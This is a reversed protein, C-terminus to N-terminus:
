RVIDCSVPVAPRLPQDFADGEYLVRELFLGSPPATYRAPLDSASKLLPAVDGPALEGRGVEVLVGVMRRVMKWIFHSGRVRILILDGAEGLEVSEVKVQTSKEEPDDASFARFDHLGVFPAAAKKMKAFDLIDKVWWVYPKAFATRRRSVQYLYSRGVAGHRAHFRHPARHLDVLNIDAPLEDNVAWRLRDPALSTEVELHAVQMLAHVGADTRGSGYLEFRKSRCAIEIARQLEGQVTRANKQVQWGSYRTGVYEIFLKFRM